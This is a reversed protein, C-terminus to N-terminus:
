IPRYCLPLMSHLALSDARLSTGDDINTMGTSPPAGSRFMSRSSSFGTTRPSLSRSGSSSFCGAAAEGSVFVASLTWAYSLAHTGHNASVAGYVPSLVVTFVEAAVLLFLRLASLTDLLKPFVATSTPLPAPHLLQKLQGHSRLLLSAAVFLLVVFVILVNNFTDSGCEFRPKYADSDPLQSRTACGFLNGELVSLPTPANIIASSLQGSFRNVKLNIQASSSLNAVHDLLGGLKNNALDFVRFQGLAQQLHVPITGSLRNHSSSLDRLSAPWRSLGSFVSGSLGNCSVHVHLTSINPLHTFLCAPLEGKMLTKTM